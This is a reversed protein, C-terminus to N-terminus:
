SSSRYSRTRFPLASSSFCCRSATGRFKFVLVSPGVGRRWVFFRKTLVMVLSRDKRTFFSFIVSSRM